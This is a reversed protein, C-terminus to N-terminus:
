YFISDPGLWSDFEGVGAIWGPGTLASAGSLGSWIGGGINRVQMFDPYHDVTSIGENADAIRAQILLRAAIEVREKLLVANRNLPNVFYAALAAIVATQLQIDWLDPNNIRKTYIVQAVRANSLIVAIENGNADDDVAKTFPIRTNAFPPFSLGTGTMPPAQTSPTTPTPILFRVKLCDSPYAYEYLWPYPPQPLSGDPNEPTGMAAKLMTLPAQKRASGWNATRFVADVQTQFNRSAVQAALSGPPAPPNIGQITNQSGIADLAMNCLDVVSTM